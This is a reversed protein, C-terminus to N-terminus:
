RMKFFFRKYREVCQLVNPYPSCYTYLPVHSGAVWLTCLARPTSPLPYLLFLPAAREAPAYAVVEKRSPLYLSLPHAHVRGGVLSPQNKKDHHFLRWFSAMAVRHVRHARWRCCENLSRYQAPIKLCDVPALFRTPIPNDYRGAMSCLSASNM